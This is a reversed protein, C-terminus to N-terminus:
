ETERKGETERERGQWQDEREGERGGARVCWISSTFSSNNFLIVVLLDLGGPRLKLTSRGESLLEEGGRVKSELGGCTVAQSLAL